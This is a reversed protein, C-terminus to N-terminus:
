GCLEGTAMWLQRKCAVKAAGHMDTGALEKLLIDLHFSFNLNLLCFSDLNLAFSLYLM